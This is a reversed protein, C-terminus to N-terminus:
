AEESEDESEEESVTEKQNWVEEQRIEILKAKQQQEKEKTKLDLLVSELTNEIYQNVNGFNKRILEKAEPALANQIQMQVNKGVNFLEARDAKGHKILERLEGAITQETAKVATQTLHHVDAIADLLLQRQRADKIKMAQEVSEAKLRNLYMAVYVSAISLLLMLINTLVEQFPTLERM